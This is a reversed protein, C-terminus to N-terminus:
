LVDATFTVAGFVELCMDDAWLMLPMMSHLRRMEFSTEIGQLPLVCLYVSLSRLWLKGKYCNRSRQIKKTMPYKNLYNFLILHTLLRWAGIHLYAAIKIRKIVVQKKSWNEADTVVM